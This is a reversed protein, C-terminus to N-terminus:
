RIVKENNKVESDIISEFFTNENKLVDLLLRNCDKEITNKTNKIKTELKSIEKENNKVKNKINLIIENYKSITNQMNAFELNLKSFDM